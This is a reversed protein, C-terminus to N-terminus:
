RGGTLESFRPHSRIERWWWTGASEEWDHNPNAVAVRKLLDIAEDLDEPDIPVSKAILQPYAEGEDEQPYMIFYIDKGTQNIVNFRAKWPNVALLSPVLLLLGMVILIIKFTNNRPDKM